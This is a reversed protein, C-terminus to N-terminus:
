VCTVVCYFLIWTAFRNNLPVLYTGQYTHVTHGMHIPVFTKLFHVFMWFENYQQNKNVFVFDVGVVSLPVRSYCYELELFM